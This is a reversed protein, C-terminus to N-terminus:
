KADKADKATFDRPNKAEVTGEIEDRLQSVTFIVRRHKGGSGKRRSQKQDEKHGKHNDAKAQL